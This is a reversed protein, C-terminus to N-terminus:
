REGLPIANYIANNYLKWAALSERSVEVVRDQIESTDAYTNLVMAEGGAHEKDAEVHVWIFETDKKTLGLKEWPNLGLQPPLGFRKALNEDNTRELVQLAAMGEIWTRNRTLNEWVNLAIVTEPLMPNSIIEQRTLGLAEGMQILLEVHGKGARSDQVEEDWMNRILMMRVPLHPCVGAVNGLWRPFHSAFHYFHKLWTQGGVKTVRGQRVYMWWGPPTTFYDKMLDEIRQSLENTVTAEEKVTVAPIFLLNPREEVV